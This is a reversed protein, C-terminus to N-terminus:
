CGHEARLADQLSAADPKGTIPRHHDIEFEEIALQLAQPDEAAYGIDGPYYGLNSLREQVGSVETVPDLYGIGLAFRRLVDFGGAPFTPKAKPDLPLDPDQDPTVPPPVPPATPDPDVGRTSLDITKYVFELVGLELGAEIDLADLKGDGASVAKKGDVPYTCTLGPLPKDNEDKLIVFLDVRDPSLVVFRHSRGTAASASDVQLPTVEVSDGALLINPNRTEKLGANAPDNWLLRYARRENLRAILVMHQGPKVKHTTM